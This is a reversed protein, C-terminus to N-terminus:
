DAIAKLPKALAEPSFESLGRERGHRPAELCRRLAEGVAAPEMGSFYSASDGLVWAPGPAGSCVVPVEALMAELGVMGFAEASSAPFLLADFAALYRSGDPVFGAFQVAPGRDDSVQGTDGAEGVNSFPLLERALATLPERLPGDGLVVLRVARGDAAASQAWGGRAFEAFGRVALEINKKRHLRGLVGVVLEDAGLKLQTRAAARSVRRQDLDRAILTNPLVWPTGLDAAVAPSVGALRLSRQLYTVYLYRRRSHLMGFEHALLVERPSKMRAKRAVRLSRYRHYLSLKTPRLARLHRLGVADDVGQMYYSSAGASASVSPTALASYGSMMDLGAFQAPALSDSSHLFVTHCRWGLLNAAAEYARCIDRFPARDYPCVQVM